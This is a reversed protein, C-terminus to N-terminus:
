HRARWGTKYCCENMWSVHHLKETKRWRVLGSLEKFLDMIQICGKNCPCFVLTKVHDRWNGSLERSFEEWPNPGDYASRCYAIMVSMIPTKEAIPIRMLIGEASQSTQLVISKREACEWFICNKTVETDLLATGQVNIEVITCWCSKVGIMSWYGNWMPVITKFWQIWYDDHKMPRSRRM